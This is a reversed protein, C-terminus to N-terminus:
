RSSAATDVRWMAELAREVQGHGLKREALMRFKDSVEQDTMPNGSHGRPYDVHAM